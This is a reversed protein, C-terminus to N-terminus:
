WEERYIADQMHQVLQRTTLDEHPLRMKKPKRNWREPLSPQPDDYM